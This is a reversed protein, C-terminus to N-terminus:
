TWDPFCGNEQIELQIPPVGRLGLFALHSKKQSIKINASVTFLPPTGWVQVDM